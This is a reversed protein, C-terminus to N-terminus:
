KLDWHKFGNAISKVSEAFAKGGDVFFFWFPAIVIGLWFFPNWWYMAFLFFSAKYKKKKM